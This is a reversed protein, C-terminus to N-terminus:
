KLWDLDLFECIEVLQPKGYFNYDIMLNDFKDEGMLWLWGIYHM